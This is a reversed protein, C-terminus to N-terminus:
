VQVRFEILGEGTVQFDGKVHTIHTCEAPLQQYMSKLVTKKLHGESFLVTHKM